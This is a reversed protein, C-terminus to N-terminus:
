MHDNSYVKVLMDTFQREAGQKWTIAVSTTRGRDNDIVTYGANNVSLKLTAYNMYQVGIDSMSILTGIVDFIIPTENKLNCNDALCFYTVTSALATAAKSDGRLMTEVQGGDLAINWCTDLPTLTIESWNAALLVQMCWPCMFVNYEVSPPSAGNYGIYVSGAMAKINTKSVIGPFRQILSPFNTMPGIAIIDVTEQSNKIIDAMKAVGDSYVGGKYTSLDEDAGWSILTQHTNNNNKLGIGIPIDDRGLLKLLKAVVKARATTDQTCTVILKIDLEESQAAYVIAFTDDIFSGVDTDFIVPHKAAHCLCQELCLQCYFIGTVLLILASRKM